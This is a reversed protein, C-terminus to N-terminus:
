YLKADTNPKTSVNLDKELLIRQVKSTSFQSPNEKQQKNEFKNTESIKFFM